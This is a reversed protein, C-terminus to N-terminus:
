WPLGCLDIEGDPLPREGLAVVMSIAEDDFTVRDERDPQSFWVPREVVQWGARGYFPILGTHTVLFAFPVGMEQRMFTNVDQLMRSAYGRGEYQPPTMVGGLGGFRIAEGGVTVVRDFIALSSVPTDGDFTVAQWPEDNSWQFPAGGDPFCLAGWERILLQLEISVADAAYIDVRLTM